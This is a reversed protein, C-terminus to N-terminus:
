SGSNEIVKRASELTLSIDDDTHSFSLFNTEFVSPALYVGSKLLRTFISFYDRPKVSSLDEYRDVKGVGPFFQFMPGISNMACERGSNRIEGSIGSALKEARRQLLVYNEQKLQRLAAIGAAMTVPNASFTGAQYINGSPSIHDMLDASGGFLGVPMGGGIIKGLITIDPRVGITSSYSGWHFRFGTVVEDFILLSGSDRAIRGVDRLYADKPLIVGANAMVPELIVSSISEGCEEFIEKISEIDNYKAVMVTGSVAEPIGPSSPVGHTLLGSGSKILSYDHSGHYCGEMKVVLNRGTYGRALRIAHMTAETGSSTFRMKEVFPLAERIVSALEVELENPTGTVSLKGAQESIANVIAQHSHGLILPGSGLWYDVYERGDSDTIRSGRGSKM